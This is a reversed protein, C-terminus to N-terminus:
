YKTYIILKDGIKINSGKINNWKKINKISSGYKYSIRSLSDGRKVTYIIKKSSKINKNEKYNLPVHITLKKGVYIMDNRIGNWTKIKKVSTRFRIAIESLTDGSKVTYFIKKTKNSSLMSQMYEDYGQTPIQLVQGPQLYKKQSINNMSTIDQIKINYKFAIRSLNDGKKVIHEVVLFDETKKEKLLAFLSDFSEYNKLKPLRLNYFEKKELPPLIGRKIEPNYSQLTKIDIGTIELIQQFSVQKDIEKDVWEMDPESTTTNFGYKEPNKSILFFALIKPVYNRTQGPLRNLDWFNYSDSRKIEKLVRSAGCNYAAFALYWNQGNKDEPNEKDFIKKLDKLYRAAAHTSKIFDRREDIYWNKQLGYVKGTSSIFQWPGSAQAYSLALPNLGSEIVCLYFIEHPVNEKELIPLMIKKFKQSRDLWMQVGKKAEPSSFYKVNKYVKSNFTIPIHGPIFEITEDVFEVEELQQKYIFNDLKEKFLAMSLPSELRNTTVSKNQYYDISANLILNYEIRKYEDNLSLSDLFEFSEFLSQFHIQTEITDLTIDYIIADSFTLKSEYLQEYFIDNNQSGNLLSDIKLSSVYLSDDLSLTDILNINVVKDVKNSDIQAFSLSFFLLICFIM